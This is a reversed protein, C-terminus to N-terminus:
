SALQEFLAAAPLAPVLADIRDYVGGHGPLLQSSDKVGARRKLLSEFLDGVISLAVLAALLCSAALVGAGEFLRNSLLPANPAFRWCAIAIAIVSLMAGYVGAWTKGPSIQPALKRRGFARGFFYAATDAIWVVALVSLLQAGGQHLFHMLAVWAAVILVLGLGLAALPGLQPLRPGHAGPLALAIVVWTLTAVISLPEVLSETVGPASFHLLFLAIGLVVAVAIASGRNWGVLRLWEAMAVSLVLTVVAVFATISWALAGLLVALLVLATLIRQILM